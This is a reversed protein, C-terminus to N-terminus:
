APRKGAFRLYGSVLRTEHRALLWATAGGATDAVWDWISVDRGPVMSQHWEDTIGYASALAMALFAATNASWGGRRAALYCWGALIAYLGFHVLKDFHPPLWIGPEKIDSRGSLWFIVGAWAVAPLWNWYTSSRTM